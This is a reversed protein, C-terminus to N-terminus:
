SCGMLNSGVLIRFIFKWQGMKDTEVICIGNLMWLFVIIILILFEVDVLDWRSIM